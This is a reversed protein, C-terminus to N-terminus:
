QPLNRNEGAGGPDFNLDFSVKPLAKLTFTLLVGYERSTGNDSIVAGLSAVWSTLDRYVSYRQQELVKTNAEYQESFGVGWNDNIRYYGGFAYLSSDPFFPNDRLLRHSLSFSVSPLPQVGISTNVETFGKDFAPVQSDVGFSVWPVPSFFFRNFLNSYPTKDYPNDFNVDFFTDLGMWAITSDDRRTLLRNRVGVRWITWDAISDITTFQPFDIPRLQTQPQYRDFQLIAAPNHDSAAVYSFNTYPEIVHKLGDLGLARNQAGEWTRSIKFSAEAGTNFVGRWKDGGFQFPNAATGNPLAFDPVFPNPNPLLVTNGLDRTDSYYTGRVGVRPVISLWGFYTHPYLLQHFTDFRWSGYSQLGLVDPFKHHLNAISTESEYFVPSGFIGHRKVDFSLEPVRETQEFFENAQFRVTGTLAYWPSIKTLAVVNDPQPDIRFEARYFDELVYPDSLKTVNAIGYLDDSFNTRNVVSLRYRGAGLEGRVEGNRNTEPNADDIFYTRIRTFSSRNVGYRIESDFGLAVGRRSRYDLRVRGKIDETIPFTVESLLSAGWSSLYAPTIMFGFTDDLSQYLYPWWFIPVNGVYMTVNQFVVRDKEYLRVTRARIRFDPHSSDHTTLTGNTIRFAGEGISTIDQGAVYYVDHHTSMGGAKIEKTEVNYTAADGVYLNVARYIRVHGEVHVQHTEPNYEAYDAYIDTDGLHIAVNDRATAVGNTYNTEGSATIEVPQGKLPSPSEEARAVGALVLALLLSGLKRM